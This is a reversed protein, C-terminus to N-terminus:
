SLYKHYYVEEQVGTISNFLEYELGAVTPMRNKVPDVEVSLYAAHFYPRHRFHKPTMIIFSDFDIFLVELSATLIDFRSQPITIM